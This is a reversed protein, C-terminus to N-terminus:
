ISEVSNLDKAIEIINADMSEWYKQELTHADLPETFNVGPNDNLTLMIQAFLEVNLSNNASLEYTAIFNGDQDEKVSKPLPDLTHYHIKQFPTEPPLTIQTLANQSTPNELHYNVNLDFVQENGFIASIAAGQLNNYIITNFDSGEQLTFDSPNIRSPSGFISPVILKLQYSEYQYHDALQPINVELIKGSIQSIDSDIYTIILDRKKGEGVIQDEFSVGISTQGKQKSVQPEISEGNSTVQIKDLNTSNLIIGYRSIFYEPTKNTITFKQEVLTKGAANVTYSSVLNIAFSDKTAEEEAFSTKSFIIFFSLLFLFLKKM